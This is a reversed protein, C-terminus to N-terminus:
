LLYKKLWIWRFRHGAYPAWSKVWNKAVSHNQRFSSHHKQLGVCLLTNHTVPNECLIRHMSTLDYPGTCCALQNTSWGGTRFNWASSFMVFTVYLIFSSHRGVPLESLSTGVKVNKGTLAIVAHIKNLPSMEKWECFHKIHTSPSSSLPWVPRELKPFCQKTINSFVPMLLFWYVGGRM